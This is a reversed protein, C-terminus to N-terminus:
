GPIAGDLRTLGTVADRASIPVKLRESTDHLLHLELDACLENHRGSIAILFVLHRAHEDVGDIRADPDHFRRAISADDNHPAAFVL